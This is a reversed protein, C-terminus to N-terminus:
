GMFTLVVIGDARMMLLIGADETAGTMPVSSWYCQPKPFGEIEWRVEEGYKEKLLGLIREYAEAGVDQAFTYQAGNLLGDKFLFDINGVCGFFGINEVFLNGTENEKANPFQEVVSHETNWYFEGVGDCRGEDIGIPEIATYKESACSTCLLIVAISALYVLSKIKM